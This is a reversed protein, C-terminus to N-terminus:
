EISTITGIPFYAIYQDEMLSNFLYVAKELDVYSLAKLLTFVLRNRHREEDKTSDKVLWEDRNTRILRTGTLFM